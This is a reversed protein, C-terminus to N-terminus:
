GARGAAVPLRRGRRRRRGPVSARAGPPLRRAPGQAQAARSIDGALKRHTAFSGMVYGGGHLYLVARDTRAGEAVVWEGPVGALDVSTITVDDGPPLAVVEMGKRLAEVAHDGPPRRREWLIGVLKEYQPSAM